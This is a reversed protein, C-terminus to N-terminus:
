MVEIEDDGVLFRTTFNMACVEEAVVDSSRGTKLPQDNSGRHTIVEFHLDLLHRKGKSTPKIDKVSVKAWITDGPYIPAEPALRDIRCIATFHGPAM